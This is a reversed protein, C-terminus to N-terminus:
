EYWTIEEDSNWRIGVEYDGSKDLVLVSGTMGQINTVEIPVTTGSVPRNHLYLTGGGSYGGNDCEKSVDEGHLKIFLNNPIM